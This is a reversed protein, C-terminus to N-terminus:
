RMNDAVPQEILLTIHDEPQPAGLHLPVHLTREAADFRHQVVERRRALRRGSSCLAQAFGGRSHSVAALHQRGASGRALTQRQKNPTTTDAIKFSHWPTGNRVTSGPVTKNASPFRSRISHM